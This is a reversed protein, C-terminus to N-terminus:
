FWYDNYRMDSLDTYYNNIMSSIYKQFHGQAITRTCEIMWDNLWEIM